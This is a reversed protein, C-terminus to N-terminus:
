FNYSLQVDMSEWLPGNEKEKWEIRFGFYKTESQMPDHPLDSKDQRDHVSQNDLRGKKGKNHFISSVYKINKKKLYVPSISCKTIDPGISWYVNVSIKMLM